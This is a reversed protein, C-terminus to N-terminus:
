HSISYCRLLWSKVVIVTVIIAFICSGYIKELFFVAVMGVNAVDKIQQSIPLSKM